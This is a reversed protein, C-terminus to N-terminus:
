YFYVRGQTTADPYLASVWKEYGNYPLTAVRQETGLMLHTAQSWRPHPYEPHVNAWFGYEKPQIKEWFSMPKDATFEIKVISKIAKFGYKWPLVLRLPAGNQPLLDQGYLGTAMFALDHTAEELTLGETYPWPYWYQALGPMSNEDSLTTFRLYKAEPKPMAKKVLAALAFGRWPAIFAWAEVCRHQTIREEMPMSRLLDDIDIRLPNEILGSLELTWPRLSMAKALPAVGKHSGFEYFNVYNFVQDSPTIPQDFTPLALNAQTMKPLLLSGVATMSGVLYQRRSYYHHESTVSAESLQWDPKQLVIM